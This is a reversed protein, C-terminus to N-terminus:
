GGWTAIQRYFLSLIQVMSIVCPTFMMSIVMPKEQLDSLDVDLSGTPVYDTEHHHVLRIQIPVESNRFCLNAGAVANKIELLTDQLGGIENKVVTPFVVM